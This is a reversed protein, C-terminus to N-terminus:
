ADGKGGGTIKWYKKTKKKEQHPKVNIKELIDMYELVNKKFAKPKYVGNALNVLLNLVQRKDYRMDSGIWEEMMEETVKRDMM